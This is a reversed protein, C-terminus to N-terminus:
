NEVRLELMRKISGEAAARVAEDIVVEPSEDLLTQYINELTVLKMDKCAICRECGDKTPVLYFQKNPYRRELEYLIGSETVVIVEQVDERGCYDLIGATSGAYDALAAVEAKCEPHVVVRAEPHAEKLEAIREVSFEEHVLCAGNWLKM